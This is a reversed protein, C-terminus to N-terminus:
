RTCDASPAGETSPRGATDMTEKICRVSGTSQKQRLETVATRGVDAKERIHAENKLAIGDSRGDKDNGGSYPADAQRKLGHSKSEAHADVADTACGISTRGEADEFMRNNEEEFLRETGSTPASMAFLQRTTPVSVPERGLPNSSPAVLHNVSSQVAAGIKGSFSSGLGSDSNENLVNKEQARLANGVNKGDGASEIGNQQADGGCSGLGKIGETETVRRIFGMDEGNADRDPTLGFASVLNPEPMPSSTPFLPVRTGARRATAPTSAFFHRPTLFPDQVRPFAEGLHSSFNRPSSNLLFAGPSKAGPTLALIGGPTGLDHRLSIEGPSALSREQGLSLSRPPTTFVGQIGDENSKKHGAEGSVGRIPTQLADPYFSSSPGGCQREVNPPSRNLRFSPSFDLLKRASDEDRSSTRNFYRSISGSNLIDNSVDRLPVPTDANGIGQIYDNFGADHLLDKLPSVITLEEQDKRRTQTEDNDLNSGLGAEHGKTRKAPAKSAATPSPATRKKISPPIRCLRREPTNTIDGLPQSPIVNSFTFELPDLELNNPSTALGEPTHEPVTNEKSTAGNTADGAEQSSCGPHSGTPRPAILKPGARHITSRSKESATTEAPVASTAEPALDTQMEATSATPSPGSKGKGKRGKRTAARRQTANYHNKIANDTRGPLFRAILAWKNGIRSHATRLIAEEEETWPDKNIEPNLHNFWRERCQKGIRGPLEKAILSWKNAGLERVLRTITEDEAKTWPGKKLGPQLVKQWRHLCQVDNRNSRTSSENLAKAIDKWNRQNHETVVVRLMNDEDVTWGGKSSRRTPPKNMESVM